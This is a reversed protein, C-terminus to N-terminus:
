SFKVRQGTRAPPTWAAQSGSKDRRAVTKVNFLCRLIAIVQVADMIYFAFYLFPAYLSNAIKKAAPTHEDPWITLLIYLTITLYAGFFLGPAHYYFSLWAVYGLIFPQLLLMIESLFAMPLRYMTLSLSHRSSVALTYRTYMFLNQLCGMKWRYRQKLLAKYSHVGETM